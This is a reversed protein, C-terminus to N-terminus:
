ARRSFAPVFRSILLAVGVAVAAGGLWHLFTELKLSQFFPFSIILLGSNLWTLGYDAKSRVKKFYTLGLMLLFLLFAALWILIRYHTFFVLPTFLLSIGLFPTAAPAVVCTAQCVSTTTGGGASLVSLISGLTSGLKAKFNTTM